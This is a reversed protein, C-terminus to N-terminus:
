HNVGSCFAGVLVVSLLSTSNVVILTTYDTRLLAAILAIHVVLDCAAIKALKPIPINFALEEDRILAYGILCAIATTFSYPTINDTFLEATGASNAYPM